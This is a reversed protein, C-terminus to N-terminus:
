FPLDQQEEEKEKYIFKQPDNRFEELEERNNFLRAKDGEYAMDAMGSTGYRVKAAYLKMEYPSSNQVNARHPYHIFFVNEAVQEIAGSEALDSLQPVQIGRTEISRNLQSALIVVCDNEKALWKYDNVLKELQLRRSDDFGKSAILQIYDDIVVDPKFKKIEASSKAFDRISDFMLFKDENYKSTIIKKVKELEKLQEEEYIGKRVNSYSLKCSEITIIKKLVEANTLERNLLIVRRGLGVLSSVLNILLTTKGHGPRGGFITIEGRTLGGAHMDVSDFGTKIIKKDANTISNIADVVEEEIEFKIDPRLEILEGILNHASTLTTYTESSNSMAMKEINRSEGIVKRLLYKEYVRKAYLPATGSVGVNDMVDLIYDRTLGNKHHAETLHSSLTVLDIHENERKLNGILIWLMLAKDQYLVGNINFYEAVKDYTDPENIVAGLVADELKTDVPINM